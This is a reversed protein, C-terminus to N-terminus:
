AFVRSSPSVLHGKGGMVDMVSRRRNMDFAGPARTGRINWVSEDTIDQDDASVDPNYFDNAGTKKLVPEALEAIRAAAEGFVDGWLHSPTMEHADIDLTQDLLALTESSLGGAVEAVSTM